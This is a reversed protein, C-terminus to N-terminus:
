SACKQRPQREEDVYMPPNKLGNGMCKNVLTCMLKNDARPTQLAITWCFDRILSKRAQVFVVAATRDLACDEIDLKFLRKLRKFKKDALKGKLKFFAKGAPHTYVAAACKKINSKLGKHSMKTVQSHLKFGRSYKKAFIQKDNALAWQKCHCLAGVSGLGTTCKKCAFGLASHKTHKSHDADGIKDKRCVKGSERNGQREHGTTGHKLWCTGKRPNKTGYSWYSCQKNEQCKKCCAAPSSAKVGGKVLDAGHYDTKKFFQSADSCHQCSGGGSHKIEHRDVHRYAATLQGM